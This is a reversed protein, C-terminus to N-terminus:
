GLERRLTDMARSALSKVTGPRCGVLEAIESEPLDLWYRAVIVTRQRFPLRDVVALMGAYEHAEAAADPTAARRDRLLRRQRSRHWNRALNVIVVRLYADRNSLQDDRDRVKLMADQALDEAVENSGTLLHALQAAGRFATAYWDDFGDLASGAGARVATM